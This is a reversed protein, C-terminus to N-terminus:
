EYTVQIKTISKSALLANILGDDMFGAAATAGSAAAALAEDLQPDRKYTGSALTGDSHMTAGFELTEFPNLWNRQGEVVYVQTHDVVMVPERTELVLTQGSMYRTVKTKKKKVYFPVGHLPASRTAKGLDAKYVALGGCGSTLATLSILLSLSSSPLSKMRPGNMNLNSSFHVLEADGCCDDPSIIAGAQNSM